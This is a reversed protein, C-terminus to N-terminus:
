RALWGKMAEIIKQSEAVSLSDLNPVAHGAQRACFSLLAPRTAKEVKGAKGLKGWMRVMMAIREPVKKADGGGTFVRKQRSWGRREYDSLVADLQPVNLSSASIRGDIVMAGHRQLLDRHIEDNWGPLSKMAWGKAIGVLQLYHKTLDSM